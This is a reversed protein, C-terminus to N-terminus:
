KAMMGSHGKMVQQFADEITKTSSAKGNYDLACELYYNFVRCPPAVAFPRVTHTVDSASQVPKRSFSAVEIFLANGGVASADAVDFMVWRKYSPHAAQM